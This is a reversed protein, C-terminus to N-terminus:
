TPLKPMPTSLPLGAGVRGAPMEKPSAMPATPMHEVLWVNVAGAPHVTL